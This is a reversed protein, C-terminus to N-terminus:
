AKGGTISGNDRRHELAEHAEPVIWILLALAAIYQIWWWGTLMSVALGALTVAALYACSITEAIDARLSASGIVQNVRRKARALLPMAVIAVASVAVGAISDSPTIRLVIGAVSSLVVYACLLVLLVASVRTTTAELREVDRSTGASEASLRVYLVIGSLLEIVSDAGFATLLVSHAAIGAGLAIVAEVLMWAITAVELRVGRRLAAGRTIDM